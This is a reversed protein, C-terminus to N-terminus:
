VFMKKFKDFLGEGQKETVKPAKNEAQKLLELAKREDDSISTPVHVVVKIHLDGRRSTGLIQVGRNRLKFVKEAPTGAPIDLEEKGELTLMEVKGGLVLTTYNVPLEYFLEYGERKFVKHEKVRINVYLDGSEGGNIGSEGEGRLKLRQGDAIGAPVKVKLSAESLKRGTGRCTQCKNKIFQGSGQCDPCTRSISFFGQQMRIQGTGKCHPCKDITTGKQAGTGDCDDCKEYYEIEIDKKCGYVAEMFDIKIGYLTDAGKKARNQSGRGTNFSSFSGFGGGFLDDFIDGFDFNGFPNGQYAGGAGGTPNEFAAHGYKDYKARNDKDSLCAYAEQAEKFKDAADPSKNVDPHFEKAKKRFASKIEQETADKSVGLVEYYDRKAM